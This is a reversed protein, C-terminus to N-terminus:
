CFSSGTVQLNARLCPLNSERERIANKRATHCIIALVKNALNLETMMITIRTVWNSKFSNLNFNSGARLHSLEEVVAEKLEFLIKEPSSSGAEKEELRTIASFIEKFHM